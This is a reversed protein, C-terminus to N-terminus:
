HVTIPVVLQPESEVSTGVSLFVKRNAEDRCLHWKERDLTVRLTKCCASRSAPGPQSGPCSNEIETMTIAPHWCSLRTLRFDLLRSASFTITRTLESSESGEALAFRLAKPEFVVLPEVYATVPLVRKCKVTGQIYTLLISFRTRARRRMSDFEGIVVTSENPDLSRKVSEVM